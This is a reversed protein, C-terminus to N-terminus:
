NGSEVMDVENDVKKDQEMDDEIDVEKYEEKDVEMGVRTNSVEKYVLLLLSSHESEVASVFAMVPLNHPIEM